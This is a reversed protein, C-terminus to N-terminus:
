YGCGSAYGPYVTLQKCIDGATQVDFGPYAYENKNPIRVQIRKLINQARGTSDVKSQAGQLRDGNGGNISISVNTKSYISRMSVLFPGSGLGPTNITATCNRATAPHPPALCGGNLIVGSGGPAVNYTTSTNTNNTSPYLFASFTAARLADRDLASIPTFSVRLMGTANWNAATPFSSNSVGDNARFTQVNPDADQWSFTLSNVATPVYSGGSLRVGSFTFLTPTVTSISGYELTTPSPDILLCTWQTPGATPSPSTTDVNNNTLYAGGGTTGVPLPACTTKAQTFNNNLAAAADNVGAEAAYYAQNSLQRNTVEKQENRALQAFGVVLLSTVIVLTIAIILAAFGQEDRRKTQEIMLM